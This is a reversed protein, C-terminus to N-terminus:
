YMDLDMSELIVIVCYGDRILSLKQGIELKEKVSNTLSASDSASKSMTPDTNTAMVTIDSLFVSKCVSPIVRATEPFNSFSAFVSYCNKIMMQPSNSAQHVLTKM